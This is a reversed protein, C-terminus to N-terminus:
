TKVNIINETYQVSCFTFLSNTFEIAGLTHACRM